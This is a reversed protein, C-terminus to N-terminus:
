FSKFLSKFSTRPHALAISPPLTDGPLPSLCPLPPLTGIQHSQFSSPPFLLSSTIPCLFRSLCLSLFFPCFHQTTNNTAVFINSTVYTTLLLSRHHTQATTPFSTSPFCGPPLPSCQSPTVRTSQLDSAGPLQPTLNGQPNRHESQETEEATLSLPSPVASVGSSGLSVGTPSFDGPPLSHGSVSGCGMPKWSPGYPGPMPQPITPKIHFLCPPRESRGEQGM